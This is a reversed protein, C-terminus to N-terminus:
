RGTAAGTSPDKPSATNATAAGTAQEEVGETECLWYDFMLQAPTSAYDMRAILMLVALPEANNHRLAYGEVRQWLEHASKCREVLDTPWNVDCSTVSFQSGDYEVFHKITATLTTHPHSFNGDTYAKVCHETAGVLRTAKKAQETSLPPAGFHFPSKSCNSTKTVAFVQETCTHEVFVCHQIIRDHLFASYSELMYAPHHEMNEHVRNIEHQLKRERDRLERQKEEVGVIQKRLDHEKQSEQELEQTVQQKQSLLDAERAELESMTYYSRKVSKKLTADM